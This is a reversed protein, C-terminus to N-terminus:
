GATTGGTSVTPRSEQKPMMGAATTPPGAPASADHSSPNCPTVLGRWVSMFVMLKTLSLGNIQKNYPLVFIGQLNVLWTPVSLRSAAHKQIIPRWGNAVRQNRLKYRLSKPDFEEGHFGRTPFIGSSACKMSWAILGAVHRHIALRVKHDRYIMNTPVRDCFGWFLLSSWRHGYILSINMSGVVWCSCTKWKFIHILVPKTHTHTRAHAQLDTEM